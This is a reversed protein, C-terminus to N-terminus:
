KPRVCRTNTARASWSRPFRRSSARRNRRPAAPQSSQWRSTERGPRATAAATAADAAKETRFSFRLPAINNHRRVGASAVRRGRIRRARRPRHRGPLLRPGRRCFEAAALRAHVHVSRRGNLRMRRSSVAHTPRVVARFPGPRDSEALRARMEAAVQYDETVM